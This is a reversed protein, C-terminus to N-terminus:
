AIRRSKWSMFDGVPILFTISPTWNLGMEAYMTAILTLNGGNNESAVYHSKHKHVLLAGFPLAAIEASTLKILAKKSVSISM